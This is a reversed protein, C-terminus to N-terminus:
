KKIKKNKANKVVMRCINIYEDQKLTGKGKNVCNIVLQINGKVYGDDNDIRDISCGYNIRGKGREFVLGLGTLACKWDQKKALKLLYNYDIDFGKRTRRKDSKIGSIIHKFFCEPNSLKLKIEKNLCKKCTTRLHIKGNKGKRGRKSFYKENFPLINGCRICEIEKKNQMSYFKGTKKDRNKYSTIYNIIYNNPIEVFGKWGQKYYNFEGKAIRNHIASLGIGMEESLRKTSIIM